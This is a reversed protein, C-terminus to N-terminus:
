SSQKSEGCKNQIEQCKKFLCDYCLSPEEEDKNDVSFCNPCRRFEERRISEVILNAIREDLVWEVRRVIYENFRLQIIDGIRPVSCVEITLHDEHEDYLYDGITEVFIYLIFTTCDIPYQSKEKKPLIKNVM